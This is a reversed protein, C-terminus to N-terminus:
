GENALKAFYSMTDDDGDAMNMSEATVPEAVKQEPASVPENMQITQNMTQAGMSTEEGLVRMLKAKLEDYSKYNKPDTFESLDHLQNYVTEL